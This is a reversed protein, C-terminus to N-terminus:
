IARAEPVDRIERITLGAAYVTARRSHDDPPANSARPNMSDKIWSHVGHRIRLDIEAARHFIGGLPIPDLNLHACLLSFLRLCTYKANPM